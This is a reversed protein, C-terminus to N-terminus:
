VSETVEESSSSRKESLPSDVSEEPVAEVPSLPAEAVAEIEEISKLRSAQLLTEDMEQISEVAFGDDKTLLEMLNDAGETVSKNLAEVESLPPLQDISAIQFWELFKPATGYIVPNGPLHSRGRMEILNKDLLSKLVATCDVGRIKEIEPRIVPQKYAIVSLVELMPQSLRPPKKEYFRAMVEKLEIKTRFQFGGGVEQLEFGRDLGQSSEKLEALVAEVEEQPIELIECLTKVSVPHSAAFIVGEIMAKKSLRAEDM